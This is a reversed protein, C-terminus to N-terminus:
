ISNVKVLDCVHQINTQLQSLTHFIEEMTQLTIAGTNFRELTREMVVEGFSLSVSQIEQIADSM